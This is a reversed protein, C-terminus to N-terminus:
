VASVTVPSILLFPMLALGGLLQSGGATSLGLLLLIDTIGM